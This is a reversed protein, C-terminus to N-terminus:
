DDATPKARNLLNQIEEFMTKLTATFFSSSM